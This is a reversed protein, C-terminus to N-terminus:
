TLIQMLFALNERTVRLAAFADEAVKRNKRIWRFKTSFHENEHTSSCIADLKLIVDRADYLNEEISKRLDDTLLAAHGLDTTHRVLELESQLALLQVALANLEASANKFKRVLERTSGALIAAAKIITLLSAAEGVGSM